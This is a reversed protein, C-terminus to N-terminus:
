AAPRTVRVVPYTSPIAQRRGGRRLSAIYADLKAAAKQMTEAEINREPNLPSIGAIEFFCAAHRLFTERQMDDLRMTLDLAAAILKARYLGFSSNTRNTPALVMGNGPVEHERLAVTPEAGSGVGLLGDAVKLLRPVDATFQMRNAGTDQYKKIKELAKAVHKESDFYLVFTDARQTDPTPVYFKWSSLGYMWRSTKYMWKMVEARAHPKVRMYIRQTVAKSKRKSFHIFEGAFLGVLGCDPRRRLFAIMRKVGSSPIEVFPSGPEFKAQFNRALYLGIEDGKGHQLTIGTGFDGLALLAARANEDTNEATQPGSRTYLDYVMDTLMGRHRAGNALHYRSDHTAYAEWCEDLFRALNQKMYLRPNERENWYDIAAKVHSM